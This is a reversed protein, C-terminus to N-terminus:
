QKQEDPGIEQSIAQNVDQMIQNFNEQAKVYAQITINSDMKGKLNNFEEIQEQNPQVGSQQAFQIQQQLKQIENIIDNAESNEQVNGSTRVLEKYEDTTRIEKGLEKAKDLVGM